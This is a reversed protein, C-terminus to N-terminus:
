RLRGLYAAARRPERLRSEGTVGVVILVTGAMGILAWQPLGGTYPAGERVVLLGGVM